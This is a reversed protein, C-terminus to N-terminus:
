WPYDLWCAIIGFIIFLHWFVHLKSPKEPRHGFNNYPGGWQSEEPKWSKHRISQGPGNQQPSTKNTNSIVHNRSTESIAVFSRQPFHFTSIRTSHTSSNVSERLYPRLHRFYDRLGLRIM